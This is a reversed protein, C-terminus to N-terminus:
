CGAERLINYLPNRIAAGASVPATQGPLSLAPVVTLGLAQAAERDVGGPASALDLILCDPRLDALEERGLVRAPVTNIVLDYGCLWGALRGLEEAGLGMAQAWALQGPSRAAVSVKAGLAAFRQATMRGVRGYGTVLVRAGHITIPLREMALQVAGEATPVANAVALEEREFYDRLDLGRTRAMARTEGDVRGGCVLQGPVLCDLLPSLPHRGPSLPAFLQGDGGRVPVPLVVCDALAARDPCTERILGPSPELAAEELAYVHVTHGDGALLGALAALRRDGGCVWFNLERKM